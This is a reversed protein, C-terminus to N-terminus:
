SYTDYFSRKSTWEYFEEVSYVSGLLLFKKLENKIKQTILIKKINEPLCNFIKIGAFYVGKQYKTLRTQPLFLNSKSRNNKTYIDSNPTFMELNKVVFLALSLIYQSQLPLIGLKKFLSRCSIRNSSYMNLRIGRKQLKFVKNRDASNEWFIVAYTMISHFFSFYVIKMNQQTLLSTLTRLILCASKLKTCLQDIHLKWSLTEDLTQGLFSTSNSTLIYNIEYAIFKITNRNCLYCFKCLM